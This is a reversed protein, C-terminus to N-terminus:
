EYINKYETFYWTLFDQAIPVAVASGEGGEEILISLAIEPNNYPAYGIFWAHPNKDRRWEATGTKGAVSVPASQLTQATGSLVTERLARQLILSIDQNIVESARVWEKSEATTESNNNLYKILHPQWLTGGNAIASIVVAMQIPTVLIDGQGISLNYTDGIYWREQKIKEKWFPTPLFGPQENPLDISTRLGLGFKEAQRNLREVGLGSFEEYGGGIIFFYTNVSEAIAKYFNTLGHGGAKWDPFFWQSVKIGGSSLFTTEPTILGDELGASAVITKFTSGPPYQGSTARNFLPKDTNTIIEQYDKSNLGQYFEQNNYPPFSVIGLVEGNTPNIAIAAARKANFISLWKDVINFLTTQVRADITLHLNFGHQSDYSSVINEEKGFADVEISKKGLMGRLAKEYVKELGAQGIYDNILYNDPVESLQSITIPGLYGMLHSFILPEYYQRRSVVKVGLGKVAQNLIIFQLAQEYNLESLIVEPRENLTEKIELPNIPIGYSRLLAFIKSQEAEARPWDIKNIILLYLPENDALLIGNRDFIKGRQPLIPVLRLRNGEALLRFDSGDRIQLQWARMFFLAIIVMLVIILLRWRSLDIFRGLRKEPINKNHKSSEEAILSKETWEFKRKLKYRSPLTTGGFLINKPSGKPPKFPLQFKGIGM